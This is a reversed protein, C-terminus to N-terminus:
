IRGASVAAVPQAFDSDIPGTEACAGFLRRLRTEYLVSVKLAGDSTTTGPLEVRVQDPRDGVPKIAEDNVSLSLLRSEEPLQVDIYQAGATRLEFTAQNRETGSASVVTDLDLRDVVSTLVSAAAHRVGSLTLSYDPGLWTFVGIVRHRPQYDALGPARLSDLENMGKAAFTVETETNAEIVWVGSTRVVDLPAIVPIAIEFRSEEESAAEPGDGPKSVSDTRAVAVQGSVKMAYGGTLERQFVITWVDGALNREAIQPGDFHFNTAIEKPVRIRASRAGSHLFNYDIQAHLDLVGELPLAYGTLAALVEGPRKAVKVQLTFDAGRFWAYDGEVPTARGDRRELTESPEAELRFAEDAKLAIYGTVREAGDIKLDGVTFPLGTESIQSWNAPEARTRIKFQRGAGDGADNTWRLSVKRDQARWDPESGNANRVTM